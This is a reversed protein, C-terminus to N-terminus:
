RVVVQQFRRNKDRSWDVTLPKHHNKKQNKSGFYGFFLTKANRM